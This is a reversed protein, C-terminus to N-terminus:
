LSKTLGEPFCQKYLSGIEPWINAAEVQHFILSKFDEAAPDLGLLQALKDLVATWHLSFTSGTAGVMEYQPYSSERSRTLLDYVAFIRSGLQDKMQNRLTLFEGFSIRHATFYPSAAQYVCRIGYGEPLITNVLMYNGNATDLKAYAGLLGNKDTDEYKLESLLSKTFLYTNDILQAIIEPSMKAYARVFDLFLDRFLPNAEMRSKWSFYVHYKSSPGFRIKSSIEEQITSVIMQAKEESVTSPMYIVSGSYAPELLILADYIYILQLSDFCFLDSQDHLDLILGRTAAKGTKITGTYGDVTILTGTPFQVLADTAGVVCPISLERAIIAAHSLLGGEETVIASARQMASLYDTDTSPALLIAGDPFAGVALEDEVIFTTGTTIGPAAGYGRLTVGETGLKADAVEGLRLESTIPRSQLIFLKSALSCWEVDQPMGFLQEIKLVKECLEAKGL